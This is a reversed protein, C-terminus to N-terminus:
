CSRSSDAVETVGRDRADRHVDNEEVGVKELEPVAQPAERTSPSGHRRYRATIRSPGSRRSRMKDGHDPGDAGRVYVRRPVGSKPTPDVGSCRKRGPAKRCTTGARHGLIGRTPEYALRANANASSAACRSPKGEKRVSRRSGNQRSGQRRRISSSARRRIHVDGPKDGSAVLRELGCLYPRRSSKRTHASVIFIITVNISKARAICDKSRASGQKTAPIKVYLNASRELWGHPPEGRRLPGRARVRADPPRGGLSVCGDQRLRSEHVKAFFRARGRMTSLSSCSSRVEPDTEPDGCGKEAPRRICRGGLDGESYPRTRRTVGVVADDKMLKPSSAV